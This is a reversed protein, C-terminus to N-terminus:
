ATSRQLRLTTNIVRTLKDAYAPDTAYGARQLGQAFGQASSANAVVQGYRPSDKMLRAYDSFSEAYSDYARFRATVKRAVGDVYETTTVEAVKGKWGAGAKIGFLNFSPTGDAQRIEHRGWGTEHAAQSVMFAAPIGSQAEAARAADGHRSLFDSQRQSVKASASPAGAAAAPAVPVVASGGMQRELQKAIADSLGGPLGTMRSAFQTDLMETGMQSGANDLLGSSMSQQAQRMSKMLEQMFLAEFQRAAEKIAAKPDSAARARLSDLNVGSTSPLNM